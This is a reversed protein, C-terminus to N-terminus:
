ILLNGRIMLMLSIETFAFVGGSGFAVIVASRTAVVNTNCSPFPAGPLGPVIGFCGDSEFYAMVIRRLKTTPTPVDAISSEAAENVACVGAGAVCGACAVFGAVACVGGGGGGGGAYVYSGSPRRSGNTLRSARPLSGVDAALLGGPNGPSRM